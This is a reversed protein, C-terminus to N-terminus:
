KQSFFYIQPLNQWIKMWNTESTNSNTCTSLHLAGMDPTQHEKTFFLNVKIKILLYFKSWLFAREFIDSDIQVVCFGSSSIPIFFFEIQGARVLWSWNPAMKVSQSDNWDITVWNSNHPGIWVLKYSNPGRQISLSWGPDILILKSCDYGM